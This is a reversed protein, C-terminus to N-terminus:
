ASRVMEVTWFAISRIGIWRVMSATWGLLAWYLGRAGLKHAPTQTTEDGGGDGTLEPEFFFFSFKPLGVM